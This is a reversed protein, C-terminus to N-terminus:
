GLAHEIMVLLLPEGEGQAPCRRVYSLPGAASDAYLLDTVSQV